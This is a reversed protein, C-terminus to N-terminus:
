LVTERGAVSYSCIILSFLAPSYFFYTIIAQKAIVSIERLRGTIYSWIIHDYQQLSRIQCRTWWPNTRVWVSWSKLWILMASMSSARLCVSLMPDCGDTDCHISRGGLGEPWSTMFQGTTFVCVTDRGADARRRVNRLVCVSMKLCVYELVCVNM